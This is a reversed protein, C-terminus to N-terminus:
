GRRRTPKVSYNKRQTKAGVCRIVRFRSDDIKFAVLFPEGDIAAKGAWELVPEEPDIDAPLGTLCRVVARQPYCATPQFEEFGDKAIVRRTVEAFQDLGMVAQAM